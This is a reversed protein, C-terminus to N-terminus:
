KEEITELVPHDDRDSVVTETKFEVGISQAFARAEELMSEYLNRPFADTPNNGLSVNRSFECFVFVDERNESPQPLAIYAKAGVVQQKYPGTHKSSRNEWREFRTVCVFRLDKTHGSDRSLFPWLGESITYRGSMCDIKMYKTMMICVISELVVIPLLIIGFWTWRSPDRLESNIDLFWILFLVVVLCGLRMGLTPEDAARMVYVGEATSKSFSFHRDNLHM